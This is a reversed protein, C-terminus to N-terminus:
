EYTVYLYYVIGDVDEVSDTAVSVVNDVKKDELYTAVERLLEPMSEGYFGHVRAVKLEYDM